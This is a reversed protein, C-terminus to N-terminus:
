VEFKPIIEHDFLDEMKERRRVLFVQKDEVLVEASRGRSNYQSSM